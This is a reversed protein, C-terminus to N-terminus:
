AGFDDLAVEIPALGPWDRKVVCRRSSSGTLDEGADELVLAVASSLVVPVGIESSISFM